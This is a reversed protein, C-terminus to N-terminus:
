DFAWSIVNNKMKFAKYELRNIRQLLITDGTYIAFLNRKRFNGKCKHAVNGGLKMNCHICRYDKTM